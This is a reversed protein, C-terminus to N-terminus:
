NGDYDATNDVLDRFYMDKDIMAAMAGMLGPQVQHHLPCTMLKGDSRGLGVAGMCVETLFSHFNVFFVLSGGKYKGVSYV